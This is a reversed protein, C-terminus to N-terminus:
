RPWRCWTRGSGRTPPPSCCTACCNWPMGATRVVCPLPRQAGRAVPVEPRGAEELVLLTNAVVQDVEANGAVCSVARLDLGPHRAAFLVACADDVGTDVDLVVPIRSM